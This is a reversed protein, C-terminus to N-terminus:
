YFRLFLWICPVYFFYGSSISLILFFVFNSLSPPTFGHFSYLCRRSTFVHLDTLPITESVAAARWNKVQDPELIKVSEQMHKTENNCCKCFFNTLFFFM